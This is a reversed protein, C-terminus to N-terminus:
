VAVRDIFRHHLVSEVRKVRRKIPRKLDERKARFAVGNSFQVWVLKGQAPEIFKVPLNRWKFTM